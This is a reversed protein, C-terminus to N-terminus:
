STLLFTSPFNQYWKILSTIINTTIAIAPLLLWTNNYFSAFFLGISIWLGSLTALPYITDGCYGERTLKSGVLWYAFPMVAISIIVIYAFRMLKGAISKVAKKGASASKAQVYERLDEHEKLYEEFERVCDKPPVSRKRKDQIKM